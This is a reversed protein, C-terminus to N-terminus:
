DGRVNRRTELTVHGTRAVHRARLFCGVALFLIFAGTLWGHPALGAVISYYAAFGGALLSMGVSEPKRHGRIIGIASLSGGVFWTANFFALVVPSLAAAAASQSIGPAALNVLGTFSVGLSFLLGLPHSAV